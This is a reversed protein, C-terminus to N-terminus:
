DRLADADMSDSSTSPRRIPLKHVIETGTCPNITIHIAEARSSASKVNYKHVQLYPRTYYVQNRYEVAGLEPALEEAILRASLDRLLKSQM